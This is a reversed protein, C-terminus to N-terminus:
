AAGLLKVFGGRDGGRPPPQVRRIDGPRRPPTARGAPGPSSSATARSPVSGSRPPGPRKAGSSWRRSTGGEDRLDDLAGLVQGELLSIEEAQQALQERLAGNEERALELLHQLEEAGALDAHGSSARGGPERRPSRGRLESRAGDLEAQLQRLMAHAEDLAVTQRKLEEAQEELQRRLASGSAAEGELTGAAAGPVGAGGDQQPAPAPACLSAAQLRAAESELHGRCAEAEHEWAALSAAQSELAQQVQKEANERSQEELEQARREVKVFKEKLEDTSRRLQETAAEAVRQQALLQEDQAQARAASDEALAAAAVLEARIKTIGEELDRNRGAEASAEDGRARCERALEGRLDLLQQASRAECEQASREAQWECEELRSVLAGELRSAASAAVRREQAALESAFRERAGALQEECACRASAAAAEAREACRAKTSLADQQLSAVQERLEAVLQESRGAGELARAAEQQELELAASREGSRLEAALADGRARAAALEESARERELGEVRRGHEELEAALRRAARDRESAEARELAEGAGRREASVAARVREAAGEEYLGEQARLEAASRHCERRLEEIRQELEELQPEGGLSAHGEFRPAALRVRPVARATALEALLESSRSREEKLAADLGATRVGEKALRRQIGVLRERLEEASAPLPAAADESRPAAGPRVVSAESHGGGGESAASGSRKPRPPKQAM